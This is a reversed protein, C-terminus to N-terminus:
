KQGWIYVKKTKCRAQIGLRCYTTTLSMLVFCTHCTRWMVADWENLPENFGRKDLFLFLSSMDILRQRLVEKHEESCTFASPKSSNPTSLYLIPIRLTAQSANETGIRRLQSGRADTYPWWKACDADKEAVTYALLPSLINQHFTYYLLISSLRRPSM